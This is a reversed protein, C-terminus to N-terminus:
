KKSMNETLCGIEQKLFLKNNLKCAKILEKILEKYIEQNM